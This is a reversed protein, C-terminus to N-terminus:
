KKFNEISHKVYKVDHYIQSLNLTDYKIWYDRYLGNKFWPKFCGSWDLIDANSLIDEDWNKRTSGCDPLCNLLSSINESKNYFLINQISMTFLKYIGKESNNHFHIIKKLDKMVNDWKLPNTLFPAGMFVHSDFDISLNFNKKWNFNSDLINEMKLFIPKKDMKLSYFDKKMKYNGIKQFIDTQVISDSDLYLIKEFEFFEGIMLRSFNGLNLLHNGGNYCKSQLIYPDIINIDILVISYNIQCNNKNKFINILNTFSHSDNIPIIFNFHLKNLSNTNSIVSQLCAFMGVFYDNDSCFLLNLDFNNKLKKNKYEDFSIDLLEFYKGFSYDLIDIKFNLLKEQKFNYQILNKGSNLRISNNGFNFYIYDFESKIEIFITKFGKIRFTHNYIKYKKKLLVSSVNYYNFQNPRKFYDIYKDFQKHNYFLDINDLINKKYFDYNEIILNIKQLLDDFDDFGEGIKSKFSKCIDRGGGKTNTYLIPLGSMIGEIVHNPCSDYISDTLYIDCNRLQLALEIGHFPGFVPVGKYKQNFERGIFKFSINPINKLYKWLKFYTDYGKNINTSWHHTVITIHRKNCFKGKLPYFINPNVGNYIIFNNLNKLQFYKDTYYKKIFNSNFIFLDIYNFYKLLIQERSVSASLNPRTYDCDNVRIIIKSKSLNYKYKYRIIDELGYKKFKGAFPDIIIFYDIDNSLEYTLNVKNQLLYKVFELCFINGGGYSINEPKFNIFIKKNINIKKSFMFNIARPNDIVKCGKLFSEIRVNSCSEYFSDLLIYKIKSLYNLVENHSILDLCFTSNETIKDVFDKYKHSNKGILITKGKGLGEIISHINKIKRDFNSCIIGYTYIRENFYDNSILLKNFYPVLGSYFLYTKLGFKNLIELTHKSNCFSLTSRKIQMIVNKNIYKELSSDPINYYYKDLKNNFIGPIFYFVPVNFMKQLDIHVANKLIILDPKFELLKLENDLNKEDVIKYKENIHKDDIYKKNKDDTYNYYLAFTDHNEDFFKQLLDCNTAAGGYGPYDSCIFLIKKYKKLYEKMLNVNNYANQLIKNNIELKYFNIPDINFEEIEFKKRQKEHYLIHKIVDNENKWKLGYNSHNHVVPINMAEFEQVMNANGDHKTLRIGIFCQKYLSPMKEYPIMQTNSYIFEFNPLKNIVKNYVIPNYTNINGGKLGNYIFIKKGKYKLSKFIDYNVLNLYLFKSVLNFKKKIRIEIDRSIHYLYGKNDQNCISKIHIINDVDSGGLIIIKYSSHNKVAKFDDSLYMGFFVCPNNTNSYKIMNYKKMFRDKLHILSKSVYLQKNQFFNKLENDNSINHNLVKYNRIQNKSCCIRGEKKGFNNWHHRAKAETTIKSKRLDPYYSIYFKWDLDSDDSM